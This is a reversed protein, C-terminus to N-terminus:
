EGKKTKDPAIGLSEFEIEEGADTYIKTVTKKIDDALRDWKEGGEEEDREELESEHTALTSLYDDELSVFQRFIWSEDLTENLLKKITVQLMLLDDTELYDKGSRELLNKREVLFLKCLNRSLRVRDEESYVPILEEMFDHLAEQNDGATEGNHCLPIKITIYKQNM